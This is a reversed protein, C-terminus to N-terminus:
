EESLPVIVPLSNAIVEIRVPTYGITEGDGQVPIRRRSEIEIFRSATNCTLEELRDQQGFLVGSLVSLMRPLTDARVRCLDVKGDDPSVQTGWSIPKYGITGVNAAIVESARVVVPQGDISIRIPWLSKSLIIQAGNLLYALQGLRRKQERATKAIMFASIGVSVALVFYNEGVQLVDLKRIRHAGVLLDCAASIDLPIGLEKAMVNGSGLPVIGLPVDGKVLGNAAAAVTGDGGAAWVMRYGQKIADKVVDRVKEGKTTEYIHYKKGALHNEIEARVQAPDSTGAVPNQIVFVSSLQSNNEKDM